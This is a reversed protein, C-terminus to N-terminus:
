EPTGSHSLTLLWLENFTLEIQRAINRRPPVMQAPVLTHPLMVSIICSSFQESSGKVASAPDKLSRLGTNPLYVMTTYKKTVVKRVLAPSLMTVRKLQWLLVLYARIQNFMNM